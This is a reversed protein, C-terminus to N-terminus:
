EPGETRKREVEEEQELYKRVAPHMEKAEERRLKRLQLGTSDRHARDFGHLIVKWNAMVFNIQVPFPMDRGPGLLLDRILYIPYWDGPRTTCDAVRINYKSREVEIRVGILENGYEISQNGFSRPDPGQRQQLLLGSERLFCNFEIILERNAIKM